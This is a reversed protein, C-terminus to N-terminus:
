MGKTYTFTDLTKNIKEELSKPLGEININLFGRVITATAEDESLGRAM